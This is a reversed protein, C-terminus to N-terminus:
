PRVDAEGPDQSYLQALFEDLEPEVNEICQRPYAREVCEGYVSVILNRELKTRSLEGHLRSVEDSLTAAQAEHFAAAGESVALRSEAEELEIALQQYEDAQTRTITVTRAGPSTEMTTTSFALKGVALGLLFLMIGCSWFVVFRLRRDTRFLYVAEDVIGKMGFRGAIGARIRDEEPRGSVREWLPTTGM